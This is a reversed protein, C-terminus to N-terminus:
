VRLYLGKRFLGWLVLWWAAVYGLTYLWGGLVPGWVGKSTSVMWAAVTQDTGPMQWVQLILVKVLIPLVYATIANAGFVVLPFAWFQIELGDLVLYLVALVLSAMGATFVIYPPTWFDKNYPLTASWLSGAIMLVLGAAALTGLKQLQDKKPRQLVDGILTGILVLAATPIVSLLGRANVPGLLTSNIHSLLNRDPEFIGPGYGPVPVYRIAWWYGVLLVLIILGRRTASLDSLIAGVGYALGILQLVGLVIMPRSAISSDVLCGLFFLGLARGVIKMEYRWGPLERARWTASSFPIAVGVCFLFWPFVLDALHIGSGWAAHKLQTPTHQNLAVNNVLLMLLITFGRFADLSVLRGRRAIPTFWFPERPLKVTAKPQTESV